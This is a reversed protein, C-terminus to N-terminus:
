TRWSGQHTLVENEIQDVLTAVEDEEYIEVPVTSKRLVKKAQEYARILKPDSPAGVVFHPVFRESADAVSTLNGLWRRAKAMIRESDVLDLSLPEYMHWVGNKWAHSFNIQDDEGQITKPALEISVKRQDLMERVPRWVEEDTRRQRASDEHQTVYRHFLREFTKQLDRSVGTGIPSWQLSSDDPALIEHVITAATFEQVFMDNKSYKSKTRRLARDFAGVMELFDTRQLSPFMDRMRRIRHSTRGLVQVPERETAPAVLVAGINVFEASLPDHVYRLVVYSYSRELM